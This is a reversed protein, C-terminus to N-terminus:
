PATPDLSAVPKGQKDVMIIKVGAEEAKTAMDRTQWGGPMVVAIDPKGYRLMKTNNIPIAQKGHRSWNPPYVTCPLCRLRAVVGSLRDAGCTGGHIVHTVDPILDMVRGIVALDRYGRGGSFLVRM